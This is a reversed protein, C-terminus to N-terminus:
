PDDSCHGAAELQSIKLSHRNSTFSPIHYLVILNDQKEVVIKHQGKSFWEQESQFKLWPHAVVEIKRYKKAAARNQYLELDLV